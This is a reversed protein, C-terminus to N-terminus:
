LSALNEVWAVQKPLCVDNLSYYKLAHSRANHSISDRLDPNDLLSSITRSLQQTDFFDVLIGNEYDTIVEEVPATKSAVIPVGITMAELLSWSLVFPYTLYVHVSSINLMALYSKYSINGLFHVRKWDSDSIFPRVETAFINKWSHGSPPKSGYSVGDGGVILIHAKPRSLLLSPLARMFSHYGRYPELNRNVFTIVEDSPSLLIKSDLLLTSDKNPTVVSSDIGDHIVTIKKRFSEPFTKAQWYTPSLGADATDFHLINNLNKLKLRCNNDLDTNQFEPDFGVDFGSPHYFFECYIGLKASPWVTKLFLSEGWGHHSIIVDPVFGSSKLELAKRYCSEARIIKTEFDSVWHHIDSSSGRLPRYTHSIVGKWCSPLDSRLSLSHVTHGELVLRPALHKFQAPFNQHVFLINMFM